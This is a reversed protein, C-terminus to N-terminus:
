TFMFEATMKCSVSPVLRVWQASFADAFFVPHYEGGNLKLTEDISCLGLGNGSGKGSSNYTVAYLGDAWPMLAGVGCETRGPDDDGKLGVNSIGPLFSQACSYGASGALTALVSRRSLSRTLSPM